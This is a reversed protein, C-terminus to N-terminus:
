SKVRMNIYYRASEFAMEDSKREFKLQVNFENGNASAKKPIHVKFLSPFRTISAKKFIVRGGVETPMAVAAGAPEWLEAAVKHTIYKM